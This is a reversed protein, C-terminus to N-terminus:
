TAGAWACSTSTTARRGTARPSTLLLPRGRWRRQHLALWPWTTRSASATTSMRGPSLRQGSYTLSLPRTTYPVCSAIAPTPPDVGSPTGAVTCISNIFKYDAGFILKILIRRTPLTTTGACASCMARAGRYLSRAVWRPRPPQPHERRVQGLHFGPQRGPRLFPHSLGSQLHGGEGRKRIPRAPTPLTLPTTATSCTRTRTPWGWARAGTAATGTSDLTAFIRQPDEESVLSPL